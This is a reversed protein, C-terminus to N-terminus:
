ESRSNSLAFEVWDVVKEGGQLHPENELEDESDSDFAMGPRVIAYGTSHEKHGMKELQLSGLFPGFNVAKQIDSPQVDYSRSNQYCERVFKKLSNTDKVTSTTIVRGQGVVYLGVRARSLSVTLRRNDFGIGTSEGCTSLICIDSENGIYSDITSVTITSMDLYLSKNEAKLSEVLWRLLLTLLARQAQHATILALTFPFKNHTEFHKSANEMLEKAITITWTASQSSFTSGVITKKTVLDELNVFMVTTDKRFFEKNFGRIFSSRSDDFAGPAAQISLRGTASQALQLLEANQYRRTVDLFINFFGNEVWGCVPSQQLHRNFANHLPSGLVLTALQKHNGTFLTKSLPYLSYLMAVDVPALLSYEDVWKINPRAWMALLKTYANSITCGIHSCRPIIRKLLRVVTKRVAQRTEKSTSGSSVLESMSDRLPASLEFLEKRDKEPFANEVPATATFIGALQCIIHAGSRNGNVFRKDIIGPYKRGHTFLAETSKLAQVIEDEIEFNQPQLGLEFSPNTSMASSATQELGESHLRMQLPPPLGHAEAFCDIKASLPDFNKTVTPNQVALSLVQGKMLVHGEPISQSDFVRESKEKKAKGDGNQGDDLQQPEKTVDTPLSAQASIPETTSIRAEEAEWEKRLCESFYLNVRPLLLESTYATICWEATYNKGGGPIGSLVGTGAPMGNGRLQNLAALQLTDLKSDIFSKFEELKNPDLEEHLSQRPILELHIGKIMEQYSVINQEVITNRFAKDVYVLLRLAHLQRKLLTSQNHGQSLSISVDTKPAQRIFDHFHILTNLKRVETFKLASPDEESFESETQANKPRRVFISISGLPAARTEGPDIVTGRWAGKPLHQLEKRLKIQTTSRLMSSTPQPYGRPPHIGELPIFVASGHYVDSPIRSQFDHVLGIAQARAWDEIRLCAPEVLASFQPKTDDWVEKIGKLSLMKQDSTFFNNIPPKLFSIGLFEHLKPIVTASIEDDVLLVLNGGHFISKKLAVLTDHRAPDEVFLGTTFARRNYPFTFLHRSRGSNIRHDSIAKSSLHGFNARITEDFKAHTVDHYTFSDEFDKYFKVSPEQGYGIHEASIKHHRLNWHDFIVRTKKSPQGIITPDKYDQTFELFMYAKYDPQLVGVLRVSLEEKQLNESTRINDYQKPVGHPYKQNFLQRMRYTFNTTKTDLQSSAKQDQKAESSDDKKRQPPLALANSINAQYSEESVMDSVQVPLSGGSVRTRQKFLVNVLRKVSITWKLEERLRKELHNMAALNKEKMYPDGLCAALFAFEIDAKDPKYPATADGEPLLRVVRDERFLSFRGHAKDLEIFNQIQSYFEIEEDNLRDKLILTQFPRFSFSGDIGDPASMAWVVPVSFFEFGTRERERVPGILPKPKADDNSDAQDAEADDNSDAQDAEAQHTDHKSEQPPVLLVFGDDHRFHRTAALKLAEAEMSLESMTTKSSLNANGSALLPLLYYLNLNLNSNPTLTYVPLLYAAFLNNHSTRPRPLQRECCTFAASPTPPRLSLLTSNLISDVVASIPPVYLKYLQLQLASLHLPSPPLAPDASALLDPRMGRKPSPRPRQSHSCPSPLAEM